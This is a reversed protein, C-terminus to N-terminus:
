TEKFAAETVVVPVGSNLGPYAQQVITQVEKIGPAGAQPVEVKLICADELQGTTGGLGGASPTQGLLTGTGVTRPSVQKEGQERRNFIAYFNAM